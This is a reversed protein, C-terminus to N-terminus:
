AAAVRPAPPDAPSPGRVLTMALLPGAVAGVLVGLTTGAVLATGLAVAAGAGAAVLSRRDSALALALAGMLAPFVIDLGVARPDPLLQGGLYGAATGIAWTPYTMAMAIAYARLDIRGLARFVPLTLAFVEDTLGHAAVARVRRPVDTFWPAMAASYLAHRANLLATLLVISLWPAGSAILGAAAFQAAGAYVVLSMLVSEGLPMGADHAALGFVVGFAAQSALVAVGGTRVQRRAAEVPDPRGLPSPAAALTM